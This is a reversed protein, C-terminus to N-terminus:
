EAGAVLGLVGDVCDRSEVESGTAGAHGDSRLGQDLEGRDVDEDPDYRFGHSAAGGPYIFVADLVAALGLLM